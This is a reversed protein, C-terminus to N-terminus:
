PKRQRAQAHQGSHLRLRSPRGGSRRSSIQLQHHLPGVVRAVGSRDGMEIGWGQCGRQHRLQNGSTQVVVKQGILERRAQPPQLAAEARDDGLPHAQGLSSTPHGGTAAAQAIQHSQHRGALLPAGVSAPLGHHRGAGIGMHRQLLRHPHHPKGRLREM